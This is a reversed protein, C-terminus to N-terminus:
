ERNVSREEGADIAEGHLTPLGKHSFKTPGLEASRMVRKRIVPERLQPFVM